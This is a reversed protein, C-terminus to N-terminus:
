ILIFVGINRIFGTKFYRHKFLLYRRKIFNMKHLNAFDYILQKSHPSLEKQYIQYFCEAQKQTLLLVQKQKKLSSIRSKFYTFFNQNGGIVNEGHQRYLLTKQNLFEIVGFSSVLIAIWWDHMRVHTPLTNFRNAVSKNIMLTCGILKNEMLIHALDIKKTDLAGAEFFSEKLLELKEDVINADTFVALPIEKKQKKELELMKDYTIQIKDKKWVDDQDCFMIYDAKSRKMGEFFNLKVGLNKENQHLIIKGKYKEEYEKVIPITRDKSGDDCITLTWDTFTNELISDIQEKLYTEGNYTAMIIDIKSINQSKKNNVHNNMSTKKCEANDDFNSDRNGTNQSMNLEDM